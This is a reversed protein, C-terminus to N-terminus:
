TTTDVENVKLLDKLEGIEKRLEKIEEETMQIGNKEKEKEKEEEEDGYYYYYLGSGVKRMSWFGLEVVTEIGTAIIYGLVM